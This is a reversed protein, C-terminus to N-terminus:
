LATSDDSKQSIRQGDLLVKAARDINDACQYVGVIFQIVGAIIAAGGFFWAMMVATGNVAVLVGALLVVAVGGFVLGLGLALSGASSHVEREDSAAKTTGTLNDSTEYSM